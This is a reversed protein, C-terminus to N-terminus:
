KMLRKILKFKKRSNPPYRVSPDIWTAKDLVSKFHSFTDFGAKGHYSGIGSNGVGGFPLRPNSIHMVVDNVAGGGFSIEELIRDRKSKNETFVYCALPKPRCKVERIADSLKDYFLIPLIPGFIEEEMVKDSFEVDTLVVPPFFREDKNFIGTYFVKEEDILAKLRQYNKDNIIQTYNNNEFSFDMEVIRNRLKELFETKVARDVLLYDPAICTQGANIFKGWVIRNVAVKLNADQTVFVPSKGGLELTVPTLNEAAAKYVIKGVGVSGTFFIKDWKQKLLATSEEVGGELVHFFSSDFNANVIEAIVRSTNEPIESPKIVVTNGAAIAAIAPGFSLLYPYNWAGIVLVNGLPEPYLYSKAPFNILNTKVRKRRSWKELNALTHKLDMYLMGLETSFTDYESKKFDSDIAKMLFAENEELVQKLKVLMKKRFSISKTSNSDFFARQEQIIHTYKERM